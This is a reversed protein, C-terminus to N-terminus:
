FLLAEKGRGAEGEERCVKDRETKGPTEGTVDRRRWAGSRIVGRVEKRRVSGTLVEKVQCLLPSERREEGGM